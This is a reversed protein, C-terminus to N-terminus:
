GASGLKLLVILAGGKVQSIGLDVSSSMKLLEMTISWSWLGFHVASVPM